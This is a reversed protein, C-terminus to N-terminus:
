RPSIASKEAQGCPRVLVGCARKSALLFISLCGPTAEKISDRRSGAWRAQHARCPLGSAGIGGGWKHGRIVRTGDEVRQTVRRVKERLEKRNLSYEFPAPVEPRIILIGLLKEPLCLARLDPSRSGGRPQGFRWRRYAAWLDFLSDREPLHWDNVFTQLVQLVKRAADLGRNSDGKRGEDYAWPAAMLRRGDWKRDVDVAPLVSAAIREPLAWENCRSFCRFLADSFQSRGLAASWDPDEKLVRYLAQLRIARREDPHILSRPQRRRIQEAM